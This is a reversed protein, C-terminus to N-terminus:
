LFMFTLSVLCNKLIIAACLFNIKSYKLIRFSLGSLCTTTAKLFYFLPLKEELQKTKQRYSKSTKVPVPLLAQRQKRSRPSSKPCSCTCCYNSVNSVCESFQLKKSRSRSVCKLVLCLSGEM